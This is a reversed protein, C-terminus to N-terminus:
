FDDELCYNFYIFLGIFGFKAAISLYVLHASPSKADEILLNQSSKGILPSDLFQTIGNRARIKLNSFLYEIHRNLAAKKFPNFDNFITAFNEGLSNIVIPQITEIISIPNSSWSEM